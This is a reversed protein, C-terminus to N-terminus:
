GAITVEVPAADGFATITYTGPELDGLGVVAGKYVAIEICMQDPAAASGERITLLFTSGDRTVNIGALATCPEVGSWWEVRAAVDRGNVAAELNVAPVDHIGTLGGTPTVITPDPNVPLSGDPDPDVIPGGTGPNGPESGGGQGGGPDGTAGPVPTPEAVSPPTPASPGSSPGSSPGNTAPAISAGCAATVLALALVAGALWRPLATNPMM